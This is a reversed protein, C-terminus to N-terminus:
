AHPLYGGENFDQLPLTEEAAFLHKIGDFFQPVLSSFCVKSFSRNSLFSSLLRPKNTLHAVSLIVPFEM